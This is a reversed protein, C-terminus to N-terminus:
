SSWQQNLACLDKWIQAKLEPASLAQNLDHTIVILCQSEAARGDVRQLVDGLMQGFVLVRRPDHQLLEALLRDPDHKPIMVVPELKGAVLHLNALARRIQGFLLEADATLESHLILLDVGLAARAHGLPDQASAALRWVPLLELVQLGEKSLTTLATSTM